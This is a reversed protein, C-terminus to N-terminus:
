FSEQLKFMRHMEKYMKKRIRHLRVKVNGPTLDMIEGVEELSKGKYYFLTIIIQDEGPLLSLARNLIKTKENEGSEELVTIIESVMAQDAQDEQIEQVPVKRTRSKSVATNYAIRYLWTSFKSEKRFTGLKQYAKLFTDQAIEEADERNMTIRFAINFVMTKHRNVLIEFANVNGNLVQSIFYADRQQEM